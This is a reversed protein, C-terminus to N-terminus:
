SSKEPVKTFKVYSWSIGYGHIEKKPPHLMCCVQRAHIYIDIFVHNYYCLMVDYCIYNNTCMHNLIFM